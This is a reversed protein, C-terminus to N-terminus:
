IIEQQRNHRQPQEGTVRYEGTNDGSHQHCYNKDAGLNSEATGWRLQHHAVSHAINIGMFLEADLLGNFALPKSADQNHWSQTLGDTEDTRYYRLKSDVRSVLLTAGV